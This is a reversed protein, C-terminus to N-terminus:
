DENLRGEMEKEFDVFLPYYVNVIKNRIENATSRNYDHTSLNRDNISKMWTRDKIIGMNLAERIAARSGPIDQKGQNTEYDKMVDWALELTYEFRQILGEHMIDRVDVSFDEDAEVIEIGKTLMALAKKYNSFRQKWRIIDQQDDM